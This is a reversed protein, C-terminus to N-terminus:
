AEWPVERNCYLCVGADGGAPGVSGPHRCRGVWALVRYKIRLWRAWARTRWGFDRRLDRFPATM